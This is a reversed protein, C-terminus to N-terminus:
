GQPETGPLRTGAGSASQVESPVVEAREGIWSLNPATGTTLRLGLFEGVQGGARTRDIDPRVGMHRFRPPEELLAWNSRGSSRAADGCCWEGHPEERHRPQQQCRPRNCAAAAVIDLERGVTALAEVLRQVLVVLHGDGELDAVALEAAGPVEVDVEPYSRDGREQRGPLSCVQQCSATGGEGGKRLYGVGPALVLRELLGDGRAVEGERGLVVALVDVAKAVLVPAGAALLHREVHM